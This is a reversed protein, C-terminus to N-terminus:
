NLLISSHMCNLLQRCDSDWHGRRCHTVFSPLYCGRAHTLIAPSSPLYTADAHTLIAPYHQRLVVTGKDCHLTMNASLATPVLFVLVTYAAYAAVHCRMNLLIILNDCSPGLLFCISIQILLTPILCLMMAINRM